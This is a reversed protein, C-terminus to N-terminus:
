RPRTNNNNNNNNARRAQVPALKEELARLSELEDATLASILQRETPTLPGGYRELAREVGTTPAYTLVAELAISREVTSMPNEGEAENPM